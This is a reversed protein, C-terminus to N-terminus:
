QIIKKFVNQKCVCILRSCFLMTVPMVVDEDDMILGTMVIGVIGVKARIMLGNQATGTGIVVEAGIIGIILGNKCTGRMAM